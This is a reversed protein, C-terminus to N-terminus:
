SWHQTSHLAWYVWTSLLSLSGRRSHGQAGEPVVLGARGNPRGTSSKWRAGTWHRRRSRTGMPCLWWLGHPSQAPRRAVQQVTVLLDHGGGDFYRALLGASHVFLVTKPGAEEVLGTLREAMRGTVRQVYSRLGPKLVGTGTFAVDARLRKSWDTDLEDALARFVNLFEKNFDVTVVGFADVVAHAAGPLDAGRLTLALLGGRGASTTLRTRLVAQPDRGAAAATRAEAVLVSTRPPHEM